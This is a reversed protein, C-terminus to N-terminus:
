APTAARRALPVAADALSAIFAGPSEARAFMARQRDAGTGRRNLRILGNTVTAVDGHELDVATVLVERAAPADRRGARERQDSFRELDVAGFPVEIV